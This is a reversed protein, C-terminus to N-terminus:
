MGLGRVPEIRQILWNGNRRTMVLKFESIWPDASGDIRVDVVVHVRASEGEAELQVAIDRLGVQISQVAAQTGAAVQRVDDRGTLRRTPAGPLEVLVETDETFYNALRNIAALRSLNGADPRFSVTGAAERLTQRIRHEHPPYLHRYLWWGGMALAVLVLLPLLRNL